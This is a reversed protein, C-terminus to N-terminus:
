QVNLIEPPHGVKPAQGAEGTEPIQSLLWDILVGLDAWHTNGTAQQWLRQAEMTRRHQMDIIGNLHEVEARLQALEAELERIRKNQQAELKQLKMNAILLERKTEESM